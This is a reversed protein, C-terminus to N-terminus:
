SSSSIFENFKSRSTISFSLRYGSFSISRFDNEFTYTTPSHSLWEGLMGWWEYANNYTSYIFEEDISFISSLTDDVYYVKLRDEGDQYLSFCIKGSVVFSNGDVFIEQHELEFCVLNEFSYVGFLEAPKSVKEAISSIKLFSDDLIEFFGDNNSFTFVRLEVPDFTNTSSNYVSVGNVIKRSISGHSLADISGFAVSIVIFALIVAFANALATGARKRGSHIRERREAQLERRENRMRREQQRERYAGWRKQHPSKEYYFSKEKNAM